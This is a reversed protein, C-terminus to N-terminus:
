LRRSIWNGSAGGRSISWADGNLGTKAVGIIASASIPPRLRLIGRFGWGAFNLTQKKTTRLNSYLINLGPAMLRRLLLRELLIDLRSKVSQRGRLLFLESIGVGIHFWSGAMLAFGIFMGNINEETRTSLFFFAFPYTRRKINYEYIIYNKLRTM